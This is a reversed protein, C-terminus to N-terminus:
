RALHEQLRPSMAAVKMSYTYLMSVRFRWTQAVAARMGVIGEGARVCNLQYSGNYCQSM